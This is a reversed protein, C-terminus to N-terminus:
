RKGKRTAFVGLGAEDCESAIILNKIAEAERDKRLLWNLRNFSNVLATHLANDQQSTSHWLLFPDVYLPIDEGFVPIAFDLEAQSAAIGHFDTLRPRIIAM